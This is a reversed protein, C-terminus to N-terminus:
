TDMAVRLGLEEGAGVPTVDAELAIRVGVADDDHGREVVEHFARSALRHLSEIDTTAERLRSREFEGAQMGDLTYLSNRTMESVAPRPSGTSTILIPPPAAM